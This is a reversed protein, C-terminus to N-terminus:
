SPTQLEAFSQGAPQRGGHRLGERRTGCPTSGLPDKRNHVCHTDTASAVGAIRVPKKGFHRRRRAFGHEGPGAGGRRRQGSLRFLNAAARRCLQQSRPTGATPSPRSPAPARYTRMSTQRRQRSGEGRHAGSRTRHMRVKWTSGPSCAASSPLTLGMNYEAEPHLMTEVIDTAQWGSVKRM